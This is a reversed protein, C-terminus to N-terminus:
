GHEHKKGLWQAERALNSCVLRRELRRSRFISPGNDPKAKRFRLLISTPTHIRLATDFCVLSVASRSTHACVSRAKGAALPLQFRAGGVKLKQNTEHGIVETLCAAPKQINRFIRLPTVADDNPFIIVVDRSGLPHNLRL